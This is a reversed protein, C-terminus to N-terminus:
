RIEEKSSVKQFAEKAYNKFFLYLSKLDVERNEEVRKSIVTLANITVKYGNIERISVTPEYGYEDRVMIWKADLENCLIDGFAVGLSQLKYTQKQSFVKKNVLKQLLDIDTIDGKLHEQPFNLKITDRVFKRSQELREKDKETLESYVVKSTNAGNTKLIFFFGFVIVFGVFSVLAFLKVSSLNENFM